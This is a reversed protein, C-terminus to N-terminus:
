RMLSSLPNPILDSSFMTLASSCSEEVELRIYKQSAALVDEKSVAAVNKCRSYKFKKGPPSALPKKSWERVIFGRMANLNGDQFMAEKLVGVIDENDSPVGSSHSLLQELTVTAFGADMDSALEPFIESPTADWRLKGEEVLMAALLATMAKTDSGIHFRDTLKVPIDEGTRRTGVAGAAIITGNKAVAAALAPLGYGALYPQLMAGLSDQALISEPAHLLTLSALLLLMIKRFKKM